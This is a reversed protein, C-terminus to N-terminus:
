CFYPGRFTKSKRDDGGRCVGMCVCVWGGDWVCVRSSEEVLSVCRQVWVVCEFRILYYCWSLGLKWLFLWWLLM